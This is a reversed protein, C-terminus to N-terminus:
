RPTIIIESNKRRFAKRVEACTYTIAISEITAWSYLDRILPHDDYSLVWAARCERLCAALREHMAHDMAYRYLQPGAKVYPPDLYVFCSDGAGAIVDAFDLCTVRFSDFRRFLRHLRRTEAERADPKWRCSVDYKAHTQHRGGIPGGAKYGFGSRSMAHLLMKRAGAEADSLGPRGDEEKLRYFLEPSPTMSKFADILTYPDSHVARWLAAVYPDIDNIWIRCEPSLKRLVDIGIAGAGFFPERYEQPKSTAVLPYKLADPFRAIIDAALKDKSGPYRMMPM